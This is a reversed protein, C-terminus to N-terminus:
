VPRKFLDPAVAELGRVREPAANRVASENPKGNSLMGILGAAIADRKKAGKKPHLAELMPRIARIQRNIKRRRAEEGIRGDLMAQVNERLAAELGTQMEGLKTPQGAFEADRDAPFRRRIESGLLLNKLRAMVAEDVPANPRAAAPPRLAHHRRKTAIFRRVDPDDGHWRAAQVRELAVALEIIDIAVGVGFELLSQLDDRKPAGPRPGRNGRQEPRPDREKERLMRPPRTEKPAAPSRSVKTRPKSIGTM